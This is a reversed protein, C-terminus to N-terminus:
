RYAGVAWPGVQAGSVTLDLSAPGRVLSLVVVGVASGHCLQATSLAGLTARVQGTDCRAVVYIPGSGRPLRLTGHRSSAPLEVAAVQHVPRDVFGQQRFTAPLLTAAPGDRASDNNNVLELTFAVAAAVMAAALAVLFIRRVGRIEGDTVDSSPDPQTV